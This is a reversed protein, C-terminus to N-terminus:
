IVTLETYLLPGWGVAGGYPAIRGALGKDCKAKRIENNITSGCIFNM